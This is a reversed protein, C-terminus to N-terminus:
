MPSFRDLRRIVEPAEPAESLIAASLNSRHQERRTFHTYRILSEFRERRGHSDLVSAAVAYARNGKEVQRGLHAYLIGFREIKGNYPQLM